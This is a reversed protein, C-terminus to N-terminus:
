DYATTEILAVKQNVGSVKHVEIQLECLVDIHAAIKERVKANYSCSLSLINQPKRNTAHFVRFKSILPTKYLAVYAEDHSFSLKRSDVRLKENM